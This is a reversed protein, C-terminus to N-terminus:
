LDFTIMRTDFYRSSCVLANRCHYFHLTASRLRLWYKCSVRRHDCITNTSHGMEIWNGYTSCTLRRKKMVAVSSQPLKKVLGESRIFIQWVGAIFGTVSLHSSACFCEWDVM